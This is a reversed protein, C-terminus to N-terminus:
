GAPVARKKKYVVRAMLIGLELLLILPIAIIGQNIPDPTPTVLAAIIFALVIWIKRRGALWQPSVIGLQALATIIIPTEFILGVGLLLRTAVDIYDSIRITPIAITEDGFHLLFGLAPPMAIFYAFAVGAIFMFTVAPLISFIFKKEKSTLGPALYSFFQYVLFPMAIIIGAWLSVKFWVGINEMVTIAYFQTGEPAPRKLLEILNEGFIFLALGVAIVLAICSRVLRDRLEKLHLMFPMRAESSQAPTSVQSEDVHSKDDNNNAM